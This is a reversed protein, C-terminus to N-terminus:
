FSIVLGFCQSFGLEPQYQFAACARTISITSSFGFSFLDPDSQFGGQVDIKKWIHVNAGARTTLEYRTDKELEIILTLNELPAIVGGFTIVQPLHYRSEGITSCTINQVSAAFITQSNLSFAAQVDLGPSWDQGYGKISLYYNAVELGVRLNTIIARRYRVSALIESYPGFSLGHSAVKWNGGLGPGSIALYYPSLGSIGFLQMGGVCFQYKANSMHLSHHLEEVGITSNALAVSLPDPLPADFASKSVGPVLLLLFSNFLCLLVRKQTPSKM